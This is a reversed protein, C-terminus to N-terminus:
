CAYTYVRTIYIPFGTRYYGSDRTTVASFGAPKTRLQESPSVAIIIIINYM